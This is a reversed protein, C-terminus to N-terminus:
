QRVATILPYDECDPEGLNERSISPQFGVATLTHLIETLDHFGVVHTDVEVTLAGNERILFVYTTEFTRDAPDPDFDVEITTVSRAGEGRTQAATHHQEFHSPLQEPLCLLVGGPPLHAAVTQLGARLDDLTTLYAIADHLLVADFTRGLRVTRIDGPVYEVEPNVGQAHTLMAPSLDVGTLRYHQKLHWDLSGGGSGLHLLTAGDRIGNEQFLRHYVAFEDAYDEPPSLFPWVWALDAYLRPTM